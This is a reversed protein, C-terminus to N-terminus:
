ERESRERVFWSAVLLLWVQRQPLLRGVLLRGEDVLRPLPSPRWDEVRKPVRAPNDSSLITGTWMRPYPAFRSFDLEFEFEIKKGCLGV